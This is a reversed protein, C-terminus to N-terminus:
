PSPKDEIKRLPIRSQETEYDSPVTAIKGQHGKEEAFRRESVYKKSLHILDDLMDQFATLIELLVDNGPRHDFQSSHIAARSKNQLRQSGTWTDTSLRQSFAKRGVKYEGPMSYAEPGLYKCIEKQLVERNIGEGDCFYENLDDGRAKKSGRTEERSDSGRATRTPVREKRPRRDDQDDHYDSRHERRSM